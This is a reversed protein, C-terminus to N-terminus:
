ANGKAGNEGRRAYEPRSASPASIVHTLARALDDATLRPRDLTVRDLTVGFLLSGLLDIQSEDLEVGVGHALKRAATISMARVEGLIPRLEPSRLSELALEMRAIYLSRNGQEADTILGSVAGILDGQRSPASAALHEMYTSHRDRVTEAAVLLLAARTRFYRSTTGVPVGAAADVARHTLGHAGAGSLVRITADALLERRNIQRTM